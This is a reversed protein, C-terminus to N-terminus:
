RVRNAAKFVRERHCSLYASLMALKALGREIMESWRLYQQGNADSGGRERGCSLRRHPARASLETARAGRDCRPFRIILQGEGLRRVHATTTMHSRPERRAALRLGNVVRTM